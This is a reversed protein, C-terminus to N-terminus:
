NGNVYKIISVKTKNKKCHLGLIKESYQLLLKRFMSTLVWGAQISDSSDLSEM